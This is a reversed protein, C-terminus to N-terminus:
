VVSKRDEIFDLLKQRQKWLAAGLVTVVGIVAVHLLLSDRHFRTVEKIGSIRATFFVSGVWLLCLLAAGIAIVTTKCFGEWRKQWKSDASKGTM